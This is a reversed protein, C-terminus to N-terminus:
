KVSKITHINLNIYDQLEKIADKGAIAYINAWIMDHLPHDIGALKMYQMPKIDSTSPVYIQVDLLGKRLIEATPNTVNAQIIAQLAEKTANAVLYRVGNSGQIQKNTPHYTINSLEKFKSYLKETKRLAAIANSKTYYSVNRRGNMNHIDRIFAIAEPDSIYYQAEDNEIVIIDESDESAVTFIINTTKLTQVVAFCTNGSTFEYVAAIEVEDPDNERITDYVSCVVDSTPLYYSYMRGTVKKHKEDIVKVRAMGVRVNDFTFTEMDNTYEVTGHEDASLYGDENLNVPLKCAYVGKQGKVREMIVDHWEERDPYKQMIVDIADKSIPTVSYENGKQYIKRPYGEADMDINITQIDKEKAKANIIRMSDYLVGKSAFATNPYQKNMYINM